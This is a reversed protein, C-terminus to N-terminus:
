FKLFKMDKKLKTLFAAAVDVSAVAEGNLDNVDIARGLIGAAGLLLGTALKSVLSGKTDKYASQVFERPFVLPMDMDTQPKAPNDRPKELLPLKVSRVNRDRETLWMDKLGFNERVMKMMATHDFVDNIITGPKIWASIMIMPVRVGLRDFLFGEQSEAVDRPPTAKPPPVHDFCGGHEDFTIALLTNKWNSGMESSANRVAMYVDHILKEGALMGSQEMFGFAYFPPHMDNHNFILRPEIFSYSPLQGLRCDDYFDEMTKIRNGAGKLRQFHIMVTVSLVDEKDYYIKWSHGNEELQEFLTKGNNHAAWWQFPSNLVEGRSTAAHFFSRNCFTQTPVSCFWHDFVAFQKALTTLVPLTEPPFCKMARSYEDFTPKYGKPKDASRQYENCYDRVFGDMTPEKDSNKPMNFPRQMSSVAKGANTEPDFNNYLQVMVHPLGEGPDPNPDDMTYTKSVYVEKPGNNEQFEKPIPNSYGNKNSSTYLGEFKSGVPVENPKYLYGLVNDFSRNELMLVVFHEIKKDSKIFSQYTQNPATVSVTLEGQTELHTHRLKFTHILEVGKKLEALPFCCRGIFEKKRLLEKEMVYFEIANNVPKEITCSFTENWQPNDAGQVVKSKFLEKNDLKDRVVVYPEGQSPLDKLKLDKGNLIKVSLEM